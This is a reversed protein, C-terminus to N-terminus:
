MSRRQIILHKALDSDTTCPYPVQRLQPLFINIFTYFAGPATTSSIYKYFYIYGNEELISCKVDAVAVMCFFSNCTRVDRSHSMDIQIVFTYTLSNM